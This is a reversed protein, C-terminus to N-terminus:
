LRRDALEDLMQLAAHLGHRGPLAGGASAPRMMASTPVRTAYAVTHRRYLRDLKSHGHQRSVGQHRFLQDSGARHTTGRLAFWAGDSRIKAHEASANGAHGRREFGRLEPALDDDDVARRRDTPLRDARDDAREDPEVRVPRICTLDSVTNRVVDQTVKRCLTRQQAHM